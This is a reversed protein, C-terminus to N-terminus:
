STPPIILRMTAEFIRREEPAPIRAAATQAESYHRAHRERNGEVAAVNAAIAHAFALESPACENQLFFPLSRGLYRAAPEPLNLLAYAHALLLAAHARHSPTGLINWFFMAAHAAHLLEEDEEPTRQLMEALTWARNNAMAAM